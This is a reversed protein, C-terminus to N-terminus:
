AGSDRLVLPLGMIYEDATEDLHWCSVSAVSLIDSSLNMLAEKLFSHAAPPLAPPLAM